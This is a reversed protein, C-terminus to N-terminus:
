QSGVWFHVRISGLARSTTHLRNNARQQSWARVASSLALVDERWWDLVGIHDTARFTARFRFPMFWAGALM